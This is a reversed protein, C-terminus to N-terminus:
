NPRETMCVHSLGSKASTERALRAAFRTCPEDQNDRHKALLAERGATLAAFGPAVSERMPKDSTFVQDDIASTVSARRGFCSFVGPAPADPSVV